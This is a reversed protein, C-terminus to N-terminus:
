STSFSLFLFHISFLYKEVCSLDFGGNEIIKGGGFTVPCNCRPCAQSPNM